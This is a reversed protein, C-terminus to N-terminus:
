WEAAAPMQARRLKATTAPNFSAAALSCPSRGVANIRQTSMALSCYANRLTYLIYTLYCNCYNDRGGGREGWCRVFETPITLFAPAGCVLLCVIACAASTVDFWAVDNTWLAYHM